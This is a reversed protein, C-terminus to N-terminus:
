SEGVRRDMETLMTQVYQRQTPHLRQLALYQATVPTMQERLTEIPPIYELGGTDLILGTRISKLDSDTLTEKGQLSLIDHVAKVNDAGRQLKGIAGPSFNVGIGSIGFDSM